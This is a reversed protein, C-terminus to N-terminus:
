AMQTVFGALHHNWRSTVELPARHERFKWQRERWWCFGREVSTELFLSSWQEWFFRGKM